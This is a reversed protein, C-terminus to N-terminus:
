SYYIIEVINTTIALDINQELGSETSAWQTALVGVCGNEMVNGTKEDKTKYQVKFLM